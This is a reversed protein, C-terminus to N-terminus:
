GESAVIMERYLQSKKLIRRAKTALVRIRNRERQKFHIWMSTETALTEIVRLCHLAIEPFGHMEISWHCPRYHEFNNRLTDKLHKLAKREDESIVLPKGAAGKECRQLAM